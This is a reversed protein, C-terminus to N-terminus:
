VSYPPPTPHHLAVSHTGRHTVPAGRTSLMAM